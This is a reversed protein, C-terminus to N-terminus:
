NILLDWNIRKKDDIYIDRTIIDISVKHNRSTLFVTKTGARM